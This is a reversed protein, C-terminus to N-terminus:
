SFSSSLLCEVIAHQLKKSRPHEPHFMRFIYSPRQHNSDLNCVVQHHSGMLYTIKKKKRQSPSFLFLNSRKRYMLSKSNERNYLYTSRTHTCLLSVSSHYVSLTTSKNLFVSFKNNEPSLWKPPSKREVRLM